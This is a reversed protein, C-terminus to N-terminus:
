KKKRRAGMVWAGMCLGPVLLFITTPVPVIQPNFRNVFVNFSGYNNNWEYGDMTGLFLRRADEPVYFQQVNGSGTGTLGDGIFLVQRLEPFLKSFTIDSISLALPLPNTDLDPQTDSLFVGVLSNLPLTAGAIGNEEGGRHSVIERGDPTDYSPQPVHNVSGTVNFTLYTGSKAVGGLNYLDPSHTPTVDGSQATSGNPMGALWPNTIVIPLFRFNAFGRVLAPFGCGM